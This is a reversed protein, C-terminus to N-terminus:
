SLPSIAKLFENYDVEAYFRMDSANKHKKIFDATAKNGAPDNDLYLCKKDYMSLDIDYTSFSTSNLVLADSELDNTHSLYALYDFYAEFVNIKLASKFNQILSPANEGIVRKFLSNQTNYGGQLNKWALTFYYKKNFTYNLQKLKSLHELSLKRENVYFDILLPNTVRHISKIKTVSENFVFVEKKPIVFNSAGSACSYLDIAKTIGGGVGTSHDFFFDKVPNVSVSGTKQGTKSFYVENGIRKEDTLFSFNRFFTLLDLKKLEDIGM